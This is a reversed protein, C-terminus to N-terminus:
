MVEKQILDIMISTNLKMADIPYIEVIYDKYFKIPIPLFIYDLKRNQLYDKVKKALAEGTFAFGTDYLISTEGDDLLFGSDGPVVRMDIIKVNNIFDMELRMEIWNNGVNEYKELILDIIIWFGGVFESNLIGFDSNLVGEKKERLFIM